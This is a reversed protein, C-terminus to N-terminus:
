KMVTVALLHSATYNPVEGVSRLFTGSGDEPEVLLSLLMNTAPKSLMGETMFM